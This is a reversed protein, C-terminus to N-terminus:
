SNIYKIDKLEVDNNKSNNYSNRIYENNNFNFILSERNSKLCNYDEYNKSMTLVQIEQLIKHKNIAKHMFICIIGLIIMLTGVLFSYDIFDGFLYLGLNIENNYIDINDINTKNNFHHKKFEIPNKKYLSDINLEPCLYIIGIILYLVARGSYNKFYPSIYIMYRYLFYPSIEILYNCLILILAYMLFIGNFIQKNTVMFVINITSVIVYFLVILSMYIKLFLIKNRKFYAIM